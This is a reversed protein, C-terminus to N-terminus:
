LAAFPLFVGALLLVGILGALALYLTAAAAHFRLLRQEDLRLAQVGIVLPGGFLVGWVLVFLPHSPEGLVPLAFGSTLSPLAGEMGVFLHSLTRALNPGVAVFLVLLAALWVSVALLVALRERIM